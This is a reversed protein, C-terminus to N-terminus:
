EGKTTKVAFVFAEVMDDLQESTLKLHTLTNLKELVVGMVKQKKKEGAETKMVQEAAEVADEICDRLEQREQETLDALAKEKETEFKKQAADLLPKFVLIYAIAVIIGLIRAILMMQEYDMIDGGENVSRTM